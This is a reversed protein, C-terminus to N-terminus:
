KAAALAQAKAQEKQLKKLSDIDIAQKPRRIIDILKHRKTASMPRCPVIRVVDGQKAQQEEDHAAIKRTRRISTTYKPFYKM